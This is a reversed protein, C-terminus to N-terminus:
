SYFLGELIQPSLTIDFREKRLHNLDLHCLTIHQADKAMFIM